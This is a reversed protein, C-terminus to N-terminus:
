ELSAAFVMSLITSLGDPKPGKRKWQTVRSSFQGLLIYLTVQQQPLSLRLLLVARPLGKKHFTEWSM